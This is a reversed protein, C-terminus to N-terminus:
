RAAFAVNNYVSQAQKHHNQNMTCTDLITATPVLGQLLQEIFDLVANMITPTAQFQNPCITRVNRDHRLDTLLKTPGQINHASGILGFSKFDQRMTPNDFAGETPQTAITTERTIKFM